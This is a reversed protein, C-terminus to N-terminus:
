EANGPQYSAEWQLAMSHIRRILSEKKESIKPDDYEDYIADIIKCLDFADDPTLPDDSETFCEMSYESDNLTYELRCGCNECFIRFDEESDSNSFIEYTNEPNENLLEQVENDACSTCYLNYDSHMFEDDPGFEEIYYAEVAAVDKSYEELKPQIRELDDIIQREIM